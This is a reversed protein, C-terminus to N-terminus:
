EVVDKLAVDVCKKSVELSLTEVMGRAAQELAESSDEQYEVQIGRGQCLM